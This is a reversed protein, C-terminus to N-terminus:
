SCEVWVVVCYSFILLSVTTPQKLSKNRYEGLAVSFFILFFFQRSLEPQSEFSRDRWPDRLGFGAEGPVFAALWSGVYAVYCGMAVFVELIFKFNIDRTVCSNLLLSNYRTM